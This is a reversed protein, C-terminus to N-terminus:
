SIAQIVDSLKFKCASLCQHVYVVIAAPACQLSHGRWPTYNGAEAFLLPLFSMGDLESMPAHEEANALAVITAALDVHQTPHALLRRPVDPGLVYMPLQVDTEYPERKNFPPLLHEGLHYGNDSTYIFWTVSEIGLAKVEDLITGVMDDVSMLAQLRVQWTQDIEESQNATIFHSFAAFSVPYDSSRNWNPAHPMKRDLFLKRHRFAPCPRGFLGFNQDGDAPYLKACTVSDPGDCGHCTSEHPAVPALHLYFPKQVSIALRM